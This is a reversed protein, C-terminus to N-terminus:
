EGVHSLKDGSRVKSHAPSYRLTHFDRTPVSLALFIVLLQGLVGTEEQPPCLSMGSGVSGDQNWSGHGDLAGGRGQILRMMRLLKGLFPLPADKEQRLM